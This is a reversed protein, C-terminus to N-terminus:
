KVAVSASPPTELGVADVVEKVAAIVVDPRDFQIYHTSDMVLQHRSHTSWSAEDDHLGTWIKRQMAAQAETMGIAKLMAPPNPKLATLVVLPRDAFPHPGLERLAGAQDLTKPLADTEQLVAPLSQALFAQANAAAARPMGPAAPIIPLRTWGIWTMNVMLTETAAAKAMLKNMGIPEFARTQDPHSADVFVIGSVEDPYSHVYDDIYPGGLSHGVMVFPGREGAGALAAHLDATSQKADHPAPLPDSYMIGARDYACVRAFGQIQDQVASWALAGNADLGSVLVVTHPGKGRCDIHIRRGGGVDVLRGPPPFRSRATSRAWFEYGASLAVGGAALVVIAAVGRLLWRLM